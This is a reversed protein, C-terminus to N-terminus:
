VTKRLASIVKEKEGSGNTSLRLLPLGYVSLIHNKLRDRQHQETQEHHFGYGDTEIALIPKKTVHNLVLFDLHTHPNTAYKLEAANLLSTDRIVNRLPMHCVVGLHSFEPYERLVGLLLKYTLNESDYESIRKERSLMSIRQETYQSYLCDFISCVKSDSVAFNHYQIYEVLESINGKLAQENGSLVIFFQKKARSVAVNLLNADDSFESIQDDVVSMIIVDKERGQYKHITASEVSPIQKQYQNVQQNYPTIIGVDENAKLHPLVEQQVVDIERQNYFGRCHHGPVTKIASMVNQDGNDETMILLNGGYFKQNCFDIIKPHCRYHERLLTQKVDPIITCISQLFSYEACNYGKAISYIQYVADLKLKDEQTVVNPLQFTDGVIVANRACTMALAGTEISVQSAEDMILYDYKVEGSVSTRASFTTSLVVPYRDLVKSANKRLESVNAFPVAKYNSYKLFLSHWLLDMSLSSLREVSKKANYSALQRELEKIHYTLEHIKKIYYCHQLETIISPIDQVADSLKRGLVRKGRRRLRKWQFYLKAKDWWNLRENQNKETHSQYQIWVKLIESASGTIYDATRNNEMPHDQIFHSQELEISKLEQKARALEEQLSFITSLDVLLSFVNQQKQLVKKFDIGCKSISQPINLQHEIFEEKNERKGLAAVVFDLGNKQLKELVNATASNNNSVVLVTKGQVLINAIINLITQTKGTGPPGQIVSIQNEFASRVAELQSANCGFPFLLLSDKYKRVKYKLPNLYPAAALTKDIFDIKNYLSFLIGDDTESKGLENTYAINKLYEFVDKSKRESLCSEEVVITGDLYDQFYGGKYTIRWHIRGGHPFSHIDTLNQIQRGEESVRCHLPDHWASETLCTVDSSRYTYYKASTRYKIKYYGNGDFRIDDIASSKPQGKIIIFANSLKM